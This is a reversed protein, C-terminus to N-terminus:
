LLTHYPMGRLEPWSEVQHHKACHPRAAQRLDRRALHGVQRHPRPLPDGEVALDVEAAEDGGDAPVVLHIVPCLHPTEGFAGKPCSQHEQLIDPKCSQEWIRILVGLEGPGGWTCLM